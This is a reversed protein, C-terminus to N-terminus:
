GFSEWVGQQSLSHNGCRPLHKGAILSSLGGPEEGAFLSWAGGGGGGGVEEQRTDTHRLFAM